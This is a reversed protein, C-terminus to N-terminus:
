AAPSEPATAAHFGRVVEEESLDKLHTLFVWLHGFPDRLVANRDGHFQDAPERVLEAGAAVAREVLSDVDPVFLHLAVSTGALEAPAAFPGESIDGLMLVSGAIRIEAHPIRGDPGALRFEEVAGFAQRYFSIAADADPVMIHAVVASRYREPVVTPDAAYTTM